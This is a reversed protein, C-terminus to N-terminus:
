FQRVFTIQSRTRQYDLAQANTERRENVLTIRPSFGFVTLARNYVSGSVIRLRDERAESDMTLYRAGSGEYRFRHLAARAGVTFGAPLAFTANVSARPGANRRWEHRAGSWSYGAGVGLRLVPHALWTANASVEGVRGDLWDCDRCNRRRLGSRGYLTLRPTLRRKGELRLGYQDSEPQGVTWQRQVTGLVSFETRPDVLWRPGVHAAAFHRDFESGRHERASIDVGVRLRMRESLPYEYEGGGWISLGTSSKPSVDGDRVFPFRGLPTDLWVIRDGSETNVNDDRAIGFGFWADWRRRSRITRLFRQIKAVVPAPPTAALVQEFHRRSLGDEGKLFFARAIELHVRVLDPRRVLIAHFAAIAKDLHAERAEREATRRAADIAAIGTRFLPGIRFGHESREETAPVAPTASETAAATALPLITLVAAAAFARFPM